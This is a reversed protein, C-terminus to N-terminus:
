KNCITDQVKQSFIYKHGPFTYTFSKDELMPLKAGFYYDFIVRFSNVPSITPYLLASGGDPLYYANLIGFADKSGFQSHDGQLIIIPAPSTNALIQDIADLMRKNTYILSDIYGQESQDPKYSGDQGFVFPKHISLLHAYVFKRGPLSPIRSLQDINYKFIEYRQPYLAVPVEKTLEKKQTNDSKVGTLKSIWSNRRALLTSDMLMNEFETAGGLLADKYPAIRNLSIFYDSNKVMIWRAITDFAVTKYGLEMLTNRVVNFRMYDGFDRSSHGEIYQSGVPPIYDLDFTSAMSFVTLAYNSSSCDAIFFGRSKLADTFVSNDYGYENLNVDNRSYGDLIIYYIDRLQDSPPPTLDKTITSIGLLKMKDRSKSNLSSNFNILYTSAQIIVLLVLFGGLLNLPPTFSEPKKIKWGALWFLLIAFIGWLIYLFRYGAIPFEGLGLNLLGNRTHGFSFFLILIFTTVLAARQWNRLLLKFFLFLIVALMLSILISRLGDILELEHLNNALMFLPPYIAFLFPHFAINFLKKM